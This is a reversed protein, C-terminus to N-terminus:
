RQALPSARSHRSARLELAATRRGRLRGRPPLPPLPRAQHLHDVGAGALGLITAATRRHPHGAAGPLRLTAPMEDPRGPLVRLDRRRGAVARAGPDTCPHGSMMLWRTERYHMHVQVQHSDYTGGNGNGLGIGTGNHQKEYGSFDFDQNNVGVEVGINSIASPQYKFWGMDDWKSHYESLITWAGHGAVDKDKEVPNVGACNGPNSATAPTIAAHTVDTVGDSAINPNYSGDGGSEQFGYKDTPAPHYAYDPNGTLDGSADAATPDNVAVYAAAAQASTLPPAPGDPRMIAATQALASVGDPSQTQTSTGVWASRVAVAAVPIQGVTAYGIGIADMNLWGDNADAAAQADAPLAAYQPRRGGCIQSIPAAASAQGHRAPRCKLRTDSGAAHPMFYSWKRQGSLTPRGVDPVTLIRVRNPM